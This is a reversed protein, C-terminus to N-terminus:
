TRDFIFFLDHQLRHNFHEARRMSLLPKSQTRAWTSCERCARAIGRALKIVARSHGGRCLLRQLDADSAHWFRVHVGMLMRRKDKESVAPYELRERLRKLDFAPEVYTPPDVM